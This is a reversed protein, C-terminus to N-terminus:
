LFYSVPLRSNIEENARFNGVSSSTNSYKLKGQFRSGELRRHFEKYELLKEVIAPIFTVRLVHLAPLNFRIFIEQAFNVPELNRFRAQALTMVSGCTEAIAESYTKLQVQQFMKIFLVSREDEKYKGYYKEWLKETPIAPNAAKESKFLSIWRTYGIFLEDHSLQLNEQWETGMKGSLSALNAEVKVASARCQQVDFWDFPGIFVSQAEKMLESTRLREDLSEKLKECIQSLFKKVKGLNAVTFNEVSFEGVVIDEATVDDSANKWHLVDHLEVMEVNEGLNNLVERRHEREINLRGARRMKARATVHPRFIGNRLNTILESPSGIGAFFLEEDEFKFEKGLEELIKGEREVSELVTTPFSKVHQSDLSAKAYSNLIQCYGIIRAIFEGDSLKSIKKRIIKQDAHKMEAAARQEDIGLLNIITPLDRLFVEFCRLESRVWRTNQRRGQPTLIPHMLDEALEQFRMGEDYKKVESMLDFVLKEDAAFKDDKPLVDGYVLQLKHGVDWHGTLADRDVGLVDAVHHVLSLGGGGRTREASLEYVGDYSLHRLKRALDRRSLKLSEMLTMVLFEATTGGNCQDSEMIYLKNLLCHIVGEYFYYSLIVTYTRSGITVKDLTVALDSAEKIIKVVRESLEDYVMDKIEFFMMRGDNKTAVNIDPILQDKDCLKRFEASSHSNKLCYVANTVVMTAAKEDNEKAALKRKKKMETQSFCWKHLVNNQHNLKYERTRDRDGTKSIFGFKGKRYKKLALPVDFRSSEILCNNCIFDEETEMWDAECEVTEKQKEKKLNEAVKKAIETALDSKNKIGLKQTVQQVIQTVISATNVATNNNADNPHNDLEITDEDVEGDESQEDLLIHDGVEDVLLQAHEPDASTDVSHRKDEEEPDVADGEEEEESDEADSEEEDPDADELDETRRKKSLTFPNVTAPLASRKSGTHPTDTECINNHCFHRTHLKQDPTLSEFRPDAEPLPSGDSTFKVLSAYHRSRLNDRRMSISCEPVCCDEKQKRSPPPM